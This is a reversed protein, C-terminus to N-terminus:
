FILMRKEIKKTKRIPPFLFLHFLNIRTKKQSNFQHVIYMVFADADKLNHLDKSLVNHAQIFFFFLFIKIRLIISKTVYSRVSTVCKELVKKPRHMEINNIQCSRM